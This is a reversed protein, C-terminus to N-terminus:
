AGAGLFWARARQRIAKDVQAFVLGSAELEAVSEKGVDAAIWELFGAHNCPAWWSERALSISVLKRV